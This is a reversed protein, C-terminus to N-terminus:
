YEDELELFKRKIRKFKSVLIAGPWTFIMIPLSHLATAHWLPYIPYKIIGYWLVGNALNYPLFTNKKSHFQYSVNHNQCYTCFNNGYTYTIYAFDCEFKKCILRSFKNQKWLQIKLHYSIFYFALCIFGLVPHHNCFISKISYITSVVM